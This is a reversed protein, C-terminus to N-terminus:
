PTPGGIGLRREAAEVRGELKVVRQELSRQRGEIPAPTILESPLSGAAEPPANPKVRRDFAQMAAIIALALVVMVISPGFMALGIAAKVTRDPKSSQQNM